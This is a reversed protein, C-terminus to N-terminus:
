GRRRARAYRRRELLLRGFPFVASFVGGVSSLQNVSRMAELGFQQVVQRESIEDGERVRSLAHMVYLSLVASIAFLFEWHAFDFVAVEAVHVPSVWRLILLLERSRFWEAVSGAVIPAIGGAVASVLGIAALYSTGEGQPALKLGINGTALAIGGTVAGMVIHIAYLMLLSLTAHDRQDAFVLGVTCAFYVPLAVALVAKNSLRDSLRGWLYLTLANAVQSTVWLSTVTSLPLDLQNILYVTIFPAALNSAVNWAGLFVMLNRFNPDRLPARLRTLISGAGAGAGSMMPEPARALYWSSAFGALAAGAFAIAFPQLRHAFRPLDVLMGAALTGACAFATGWFLRKAFFGGLEAGPVLQHFWSNVACSGFSVLMAIALQAAILLRLQTPATGVFPILATALILVRAATITLVGIKRRQRVREIFAIAPLQVAQAIFPIAALLGVHVPGAGLALAFAVLIVGGSLAGSLSAFASDLVLSRQGEALARPTLDTDPSLRM